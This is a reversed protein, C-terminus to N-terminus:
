SLSNLQSDLSWVRVDTFATGALFQDREVLISVDGTALRKDSILDVLCSGTSDGDILAAVFDDDWNVARVTWPPDETRAAQLANVLRQAASRRDGEAYFILNGTEIITTIPLVFKAGLSSLRDFEQLVEERQQARGPVDLLNAFVSTDLFVVPSAPM